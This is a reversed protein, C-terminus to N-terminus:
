AASHSNRSTHSNHLVRGALRGTVLGDDVAIEGNVIVWRIGAPDCRKQYTGLDAVAIEDFAVLDAFSGVEVRGRDVLRYRDAPVSTMKRIAESLGLLGEERTYRGLVRPFTGLLRPHPVGSEQPIGDSGVMALPHVLAERMDNEDIEFLIGITEHAAPATIIRRTLENLGVSESEAIESLHKGQYDPFDRCHAIQVLEAREVDIAAPDFYQVLPGSGAAYPYVDFGVDCGDARAQEIVGLAEGITGWNQPGTVKLHSIQVGVDATRAVHLAEQLASHLGDGEDRIHTSYLGNVDSVATALEVLDETTSLRGPHYILGTSVGLAGREVARRVADAIKARQRATPRNMPEDALRDIVTNHGVFAAMNPGIGHSRITATYESYTTWPGDTRLLDTSPSGPEHPFASFGCSGCIVTTVGQQLKERNAPHRHLVMDDHTHADVFGPAVVLGGADLNKRAPGVRGIDTIRDGKIGIDAEQPDAGSGSFVKGNRVALDIM